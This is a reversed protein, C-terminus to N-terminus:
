PRGYNKRRIMEETTMHINAKERLEDMAQFAKKRAINKLAEEFLTNIFESREGGPLYFRIAEIIDENIMFNMKKRTRKKGRFFQEGFQPSVAVPQMKFAIHIKKKKPTIM